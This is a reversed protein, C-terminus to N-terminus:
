KKETWDEEEEVTKPHPKNKPTPVDWVAGTPDTMVMRGDEFRVNADHNKRHDVCPERTRKRTMIINSSYVVFCGQLVDFLDYCVVYKPNWERKQM